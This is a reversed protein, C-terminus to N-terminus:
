KNLFDPYTKIEELAARYGEQESPYKKIIKALETEEQANTIRGMLNEAMYDLPNIDNEAAKLSIVVFRKNAEELSVWPSGSQYRIIKELTKQPIPRQPALRYENSLVSQKVSPPFNPTVIKDVAAKYGEKNYTLYWELEASTPPVDLLDLYLRRILQGEKLSNTTYIETASACLLLFLGTLFIKLFGRM